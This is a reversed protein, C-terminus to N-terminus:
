TLVVWFPLSRNSFDLPVILELSFNQRLSEMQIIFSYFTTWWNSILLQLLRSRKGRVCVVWPPFRACLFLVVFNSNTLSRGAVFYIWRLQVFVFSYFFQM